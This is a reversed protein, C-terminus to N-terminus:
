KGIINVISIDSFDATAKVMISQELLNSSNSMEVEGILIDSPTKGDLGSTLVKSGNPINEKSTLNTVVLLNNDANYEKLIGFIEKKDVLVKIPINFQTGTNTLLIAESSNSFVKSIVGVLNGESTVLAGENLNSKKGVDLIFVDLWSIMSRSSVFSTLFLYDIYEPKLNLSQRLSRNEENLDEFKKNFTELESLRNRLLLNENRLNDISTLDIIFNKVQIFPVSLSHAIPKVIVNFTNNRYDFGKSFSSFFLIYFTFIFFCFFTFVFIFRSLSFKNM